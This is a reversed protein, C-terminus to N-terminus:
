EPRLMRRLPRRSTKATGSENNSSATGSPLSVTSKTMEADGPAVTALADDHPAVGVDVVVKEIVSGGVAALTETPPRTM